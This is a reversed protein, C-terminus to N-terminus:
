RIIKSYNILKNVRSYFEDDDLITNNNNLLVIDLSTNVIDKNKPFKDKSSFKTHFNFSIQGLKAMDIYINSLLNAVEQYNDLIENSKEGGIIDIVKQENYKGVIASLLESDDLYPKFLKRVEMVKKTLFLIGFLPYIIEKKNKYHSIALKIYNYPLNCLNAFNHIELLERTGFREMLTLIDDGEIIAKQITDIYIVSSNKAGFKYNNFKSAYRIIDEFLTVDLNFKDFFNNKYAQEIFLGLWIVNNGIYCQQLIDRLIQNITDSQEHTITDLIENEWVGDQTKMLAMYYSVLLMKPEYQQLEKIRDSKYNSSVYGHVEEPYLGILMSYLLSNSFLEPNVKEFVTNVIVNKHIVLIANNISIFEILEDRSLNDIDDLILLLKEKVASRVTFDLKHYKEKFNSKTYFGTTNKVYELNDM